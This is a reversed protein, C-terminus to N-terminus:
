RVWNSVLWNPIFFHAERKIYSTRYSRVRRAADLWAPIAFDTIRIRKGSDLEFVDWRDNVLVVDLIFRSYINFKM